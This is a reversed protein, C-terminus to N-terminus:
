AWYRPWFARNINFPNGTVPITQATLSSLDLVSVRHITVTIDLCPCRLRVPLAPTRHHVLAVCAKCASSASSLAHVRTLRLDM